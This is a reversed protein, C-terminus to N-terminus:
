KKAEREATLSDFQQHKEQGQAHEELGRWVAVPDANAFSDRAETYISCGVAGLMLLIIFQWGLQLKVQRVPMKLLQEAVPFKYTAAFAALFFLVKLAMM